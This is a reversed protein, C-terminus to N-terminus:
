KLLEMTKDFLVIANNESLGKALTIEKNGYLFAIRYSAKRIANNMIESTARAGSSATGAIGVGIATIGTGGIVFSGAGNNSIQRQLNGRPDKIYIKTIEKILYQKNNIEIYEKSITFHENKRSRNILRQILITAVIALIIHIIFAILPNKRFLPNPITITLLMILVFIGCGLGVGIKDKSYTIQYTNNIPVVEFNYTARVTKKTKM